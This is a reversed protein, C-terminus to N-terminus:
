SQIHELARPNQRAGSRTFGKVSFKVVSITTYIDPDM